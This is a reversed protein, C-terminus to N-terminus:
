PLRQALLWDFLGPQIYAVTAAAEHTTRPMLTFRVEGGCARLAKVMDESASPVVMEDNAGHLVWVPVSKLTCINAASAEWGGAVPVLAAFRDPASLGLAWTGYGGMSFGTVYVRKPDIAYQAMIQDLLKELTGTYDVWNASSPLQPSVVLAPLKLRTNLLNPLGLEAVQDIHDGRQGAGHLFLILPWQQHPDRGYEDPLYLLYDVTVSLPASNAYVTQLTVSYARQQNVTRTVPITSSVFPTATVSLHPAVTATGVVTTPRLEAPALCGSLVIM